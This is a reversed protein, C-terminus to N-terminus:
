LFKEETISSHEEIWEKSVNMGGSDVEVEMGEKGWRDRTRWNTLANWIGRESSKKAILKRTKRKNTIIKESLNYFIISMFVSDNKLVLFATVWLNAVNSVYVGVM